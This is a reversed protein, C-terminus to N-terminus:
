LYNSGTTETGGTDEDTDEEDDTDDIDLEAVVAPDIVPEAPEREPDDYGEREEARRRVEVGVATAGSSAWKMARGARRIQADRFGNLADVIPDLWSKIYRDLVDEEWIEWNSVYGKLLKVEDLGETKTKRQFWAIAKAVPNPPSVSAIENAKEAVEAAMVLSAKAFLYWKIADQAPKIKKEVEKKTKALKKVLKIMDAIKKQMEVNDGAQKYAYEQGIVLYSTRGRRVERILRKYEGKWELMPGVLFKDPIKMLVEHMKEAKTKVIDTLGM